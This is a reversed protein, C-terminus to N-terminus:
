NTPPPAVCTPMPPPPTRGLLLDRAARAASAAWRPLATLLDQNFPAYEASLAERLQDTFHSDVHRFSLVWLNCPQGSPGTKLPAFYTTQPEPLASDRFLCEFYPSPSPDTTVLALAGGQAMAWLFLSKASRPYGFEALRAEACLKGDANAVVLVHSGIAYGTASEMMGGDRVPRLFSTQGLYERDRRPKGGQGIPSYFTM